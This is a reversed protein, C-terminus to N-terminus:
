RGKGRPWFGSWHLPVGSEKLSIYNLNIIEIFVLETLLSISEQFKVTQSNQVVDSCWNFDKHLHLKLLFFKCLVATLALFKFLLGTVGRGTDKKVLLHRPLMRHTERRKRRSKFRQIKRGFFVFLLKLLIFKFNAIVNLNFLLQFQVNLNQLVFDFLHFLFSISELFFM